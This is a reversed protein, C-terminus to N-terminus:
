PASLPARRGAPASPLDGPRNGPTTRRTPEGADHAPEIGETDLHVDPEHRERRWASFVATAALLWALGFTFGALVDTVYHLGLALRSFGVLLVILATAGIAVPRWRRSISPLLVLLMAGYCVVSALSHGSPFSTGHASGIDEEFQPRPRGVATKLITDVIGGTIATAVLYAVIRREGRRYLWAAPLGVVLVLFVPKGVFSIVDLVQKALPSALSIELLDHSVRQDLEALFGDTSVQVLLFGFPIVVLAFAITLLTLRLGYRADPDLRPRIHRDVHDWGRPRM